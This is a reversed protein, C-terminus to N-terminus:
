DNKLRYQFAEALHDIKVAPSNEIDAITRAVKLIRYYGRASIFNRNLIQTLYRRAGNELRVFDETMKSTMEANSFIEPSVNKFRETQIKRASVVKERMKKEEGNDDELPKQFEETRLAPVELQIDIRDLLPGSIKKKYRSVEHATCKCDKEKSDFYGCPCPNMAAVFQFRAPFTLSKRARVVHVQGSELPQRLGELVDRHFEPTEDFFLTGRHAFSVEGPRPNSGGGIVSVLSASHHPARYPRYNIFPSESNLGAASWIRTIEISEELSPPPLISTLAQALM